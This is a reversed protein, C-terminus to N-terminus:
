RYHVAQDGSGQRVLDGAELEAVPTELFKECTRILKVQGDAGGKTANVIDELIHDPDQAVRLTIQPISGDGSLSQRGVDFNGKPFNMVGYILGKTNRARRQTEYGPVSIEFLWLWAGGSYPDILDKLMFPPIETFRTFIGPTWPTLVLQLTDPFVTEDIATIITPAHLTLALALADPTITYDFALSPVHQTLALELTDPTVIVGALIVPAHQTLALVLTAPIVIYDVVVIPAHQTLALASTSPTITCDVVTTPVHQTLALALTSPTVTYDIVVAPAHQTLALDLTAPTVTYDYSLSPAHQTLALELTSPTVTVSGLDEVKVDDIWMNRGTESSTLIRVESISAFAIDTVEGKYADAIWYKISNTAAVFEMEIKYWTDAACATPTPLDHTTGDDYKFYGSVIMLAYSPHHCIYHIGTTENVRVYFTLRAKALASPLTKSLNRNSAAGEGYASYTGTKKQASTTSWQAQAVTWKDLNNNEFDDQFVVDDIVVAPTHQTLALALTAPEVTVDVGEETPVFFYVPAAKKQVM